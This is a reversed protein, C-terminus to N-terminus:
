RSGNFTYYDSGSLYSYGSSWHLHAGSSDFQIIGGNFVHIDNSSSVSSFTNDPNIAYVQSGIKIRDSASSDITITMGQYITDHVSYSPNSLNWSNHVMIGNYTGAVSDPYHYNPYM